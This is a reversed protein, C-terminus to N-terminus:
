TKESKYFITIVGVIALIVGLIILIIPTSDGGQGIISEMAEGIQNKASNKEVLGYIACIIGIITIAAGVPKRM